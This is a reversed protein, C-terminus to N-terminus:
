KNISVKIKFPEMLIYKYDIINTPFSVENRGPTGHCCESKNNIVLTIPGCNRTVEKLTKM